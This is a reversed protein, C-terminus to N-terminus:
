GAFWDLLAMPVDERLGMAEGSVDERLARCRGM